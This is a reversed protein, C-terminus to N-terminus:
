MMTVQQAVVAEAVLLKDDEEEAGESDTTEADFSQQRFLPYHRKPFQWSSHFDRFAWRTLHCLKRIYQHWLLGQNGSLFTMFCGLLALLEAVLVSVTLLVADTVQFIVYVLGFIAWLFYMITNHRRKCFYAANYFAAAAVFVFAAALEVGFTTAVAAITCTVGFTMEFFNSKRWPPIPSAATATSAGGGGGGQSADISSAGVDSEAPASPQPAPSPTADDELLTAEAWVAGWKNEANQQERIAVALSQDGNEPHFASHLTVFGVTQKAAEGDKSAGVM